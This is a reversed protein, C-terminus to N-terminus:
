FLNKVCGPETKELEDAVKEWVNKQMAKGDEDKVWDPVDARVSL